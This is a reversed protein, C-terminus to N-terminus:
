IGYAIITHWCLHKLDVGASSVAFLLRVRGGAGLVPLQSLPVEWGEVVRVSAPPLQWLAVKNRGWLACLKNVFAHPTPNTVAGWAQM